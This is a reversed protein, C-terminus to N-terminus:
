RRSLFLYAAIGVGGIIAVTTWPVEGMFGAPSTIPMRAQAEAAKRQQTAIYAETGTKAVFKATPKVKHILKSLWSGLEEDGMYNGAFM